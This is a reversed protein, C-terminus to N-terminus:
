GGPAIDYKKIKQRLTSEHIGLAAAARTKVWEANVLAKVIRRREYARLAAPLPKDDLAGDPSGGSAAGEPRELDLDQETIVNGEAKPFAQRITQKLQRVNGPWEQRILTSRAEGSLRMNPRGFERCCSDMFHDILYPLDGRRKRLPPLHIRFGQIRYLFDERFEKREIAQKLDRNTASIVRVDAKMTRTGGVREFLGHDLVRLLKIQATISLDGIESLVLTGGEAREFLGPRGAVGTAVEKEIGFITSELLDPPMEAFTTRVLPRDKRPGLQHILNAIMDKGSGTEGTILLPQSTRAAQEALGFVEQMEPGPGIINPYSYKTEVRKSLEYNADQLRGMARAWELVLAVQSAFARVFTLELRSLDSPVRTNDLYLIGILRGRKMLPVCMVLMINHIKVSKSNKFRSDRTADRAIIAEGNERVSDVITSSINAIDELSQRDM